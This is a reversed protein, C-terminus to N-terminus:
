KENSSFELISQFGGELSYYNDKCLKNMQLFHMMSTSRKGSSCHFVVNSDNPIEDLRNVLEGMPIHIANSVGDIELEYPERIDVLQYKEGKKVKEDFDLYSITKIDM